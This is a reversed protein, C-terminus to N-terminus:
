DTVEDAGVCPGEAIGVIPITGGGPEKRSEGVAEGDLAGVGRSTVIEGVKDGEVFCGVFVGVLGGVLNGVELGVTSSSHPNTSTEKVAAM